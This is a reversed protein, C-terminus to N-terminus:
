LVLEELIKLYFDKFVKLYSQKIKEFVFRSDELSYTHVLLNRDDIMEMVANEDEILGYTVAQKFCERPSRCVLGKDELYVKIFKWFLEYCLEFRKITGDITLEDKSEEVAVELNRLAKQFDELYRKVKERMM